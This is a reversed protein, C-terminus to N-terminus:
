PEATSDPCFRPTGIRSATPRWGAITPCSWSRQCTKMKRASAMAPGVAWGRFDRCSLVPRSCCLPKRTCAARASWTTFLPSRTSSKVWHPWSMGWYSAARATRMFRGFPNSGPDSDMKSRKSQSALTRQQGHRKILEPKFDFLDLHSAAGAM